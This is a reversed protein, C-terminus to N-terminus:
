RKANVGSGRWERREKPKVPVICKFWPEVSIFVSKGLSRTEEERFSPMFLEIIRIKEPPTPIEGRCGHGDTTEERM